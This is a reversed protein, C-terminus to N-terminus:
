QDSIMVQETQITPLRYLQNRNSYLCSQDLSFSDNSSCLGVVKLNLEEPQRKARIAQLLSSQLPKLSLPMNKSLRLKHDNPNIHHFSVQIKYLHSSESILGGKSIPTQHTAVSISSEPIAIMVPNNVSSSQRFLHNSKKSNRRALPSKTTTETM